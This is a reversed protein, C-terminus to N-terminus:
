IPPISRRIEDLLGRTGHRDAWSYVYEWDIADGQVAIVDRVDDKDKSRAWRLKTVIVDEVTPVPVTHGYVETPVRRAFRESDHPDTSVQFIEVKFAEGVVELESRLTGTVTEFSMQPDLKFQPGLHRAIQAVSREGLEVVVDADKTSRPIGYVNSSLSGVIMFPIGLAVLADFVAVTAEEPTM